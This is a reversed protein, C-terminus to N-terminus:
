HGYPKCNEDAIKQYTRATEQAYQVECGVALSAEAEAVVRRTAKCLAARDGSGKAAMLDVLAGYMGQKVVDGCQDANVYVTGLLCLLTLGPALSPRRRRKLNLGPKTRM